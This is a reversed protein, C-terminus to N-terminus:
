CEAEKRKAYAILVKHCEVVASAYREVADNPWHPFQARVRDCETPWHTNLEDSM